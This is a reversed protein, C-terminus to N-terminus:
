AHCYQGLPPIFTILVSQHKKERSNGQSNFNNLPLINDM